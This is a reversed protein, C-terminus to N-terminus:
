ERGVIFIVMRVAKKGRRGTTMAEGLLPPQPAAAVQDRAIQEITPPDPDDANPDAQEVGRRILAERDIQGWIVWVNETDLPHDIRLDTFSTGDMMKEQPTRPLLSDRPGFHHPLIDIRPPDIEDLDRHLKIMLRYQGGIFTRQTTQHQDDVLRVVHRHPVRDILTVPSYDISPRIRTTQGGITRPLNALFLALKQDNITGIHFGNARWRALLEHDLPPTDLAGLALEVRTDDLRYVLVQVDIRRPLSAPPAVLDAQGDTRVVNPELEGLTPLNPKDTPQPDAKEPCGALGLLMAILGLCTVFHCNM